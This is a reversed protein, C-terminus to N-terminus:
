AIGLVAKRKERKAAESAHEICYDVLVRGIEKIDKDQDDLLNRYTQREGEWMAAESGSWGRSRLMAARAIDKPSYGKKMAIKAMVIWADSIPGEFPHLHLTKLRDNALLATYVDPDSSVLRDIGEGFYHHTSVKELLDIRDGKSLSSFAAHVVDDYASIYKEDDALISGLWEKSIAPNKAVIDEIGYVKSPCRVIAAGWDKAISSPIEGSASQWAHVAVAGAIEPDRHGLLLRISNEPLQKRLMMTSLHRDMGDLHQLAQNILTDPLKDSALIASATAMRLEKTQLCLALTDLGVADNVCRLILPQTAWGSVKATMFASLWAIPDPALAAVRECAVNLLGGGLSAADAEAELRFVKTAVVAPEDNVWREGVAAAAKYEAEFREQSSKGTWRERENPFLIEFESTTASSRPGNLFSNLDQLLRAFGPRQALIINLDNIADSAFGRMVPYAEQPVHQSVRGPSAWDQLTEILPKWDATPYASLADRVQPWQLILDRVEELRLAGRAFWYADGNGPKSRSDEYKPCLAISCARLATDPKGGKSLWQLTARILAKRNAVARGRGPVATFIWSALSHFPEHQAAFFEGPKSDDLDLLAPIAAEPAKDLLARSIAILHEPHNKLTWLSHQESLYCYGGWLQPDDVAQLLDRLQNEAVRGGRHRAHLITKAADRKSPAQRVLASIDLVQPDGFFVDKVLAERLPEPRVSFRRDAVQILVGGANLGTVLRDLDLLTLKFYDAVAEAGMGADGGVAFAALFRVSDPGLLRRYTATVERALADGERIERIDGRLAMQTLMVALGPRGEAQNLIENVLPDPGHVGCEAIVKVVEDRSLQELERSGKSPLDLARLTEPGEAPWCSAILKFNAGIEVRLHKLTALLETKLHADDVIVVAPKHERLDDALATNDSSNAFLGGSEVAFAHLLATKGSGPQGVLVADSSQTGLWKLDEDRGVLPLELLARAGDPIISLATPNGVLGLLEKRWRPSRYLRIAFASQDFVQVLRFGKAGAATDLDRREAPTLARSTAFVARREKAGHKLRSELSNVLNRKPNQDTTCILPFKEGTLDPIQGDVGHDGGGPIPVLGPIDALLIDAACAEFLNGDLHGSLGTVIKQFLPDRIM